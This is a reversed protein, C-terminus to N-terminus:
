GFLVSGLLGRLGEESAGWLSSGLWWSKVLTPAPQPPGPQVRWTVKATGRRRKSGGMQLFILLSERRWGPHFRVLGVRGLALGKGAEWVGWMGQEGLIAAPGGLVQCRQM